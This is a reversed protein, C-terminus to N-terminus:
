FEITGEFTVAVHILDSTVAVVDAGGSANAFRGKGGTFTYTASVTTPSIFRGDIDAWLEDGNAAIIVLSGHLTGDQYIVVSEKWTFLGLHTALGTASTTLHLEDGVMEASTVVENALGKFPVAEGAATPFTLGLIALAVLAPAMRRLSCFRTM